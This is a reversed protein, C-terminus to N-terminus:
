THRAEGALAQQMDSSSLGKFHQMLASLNEQLQSSDAAAASLERTALAVPHSPNLLLCSPFLNLFLM